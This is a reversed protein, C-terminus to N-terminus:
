INTPKQFNGAFNARSTHILHAKQQYGCSDPKGMRDRLDVYKNYYWYRSVTNRGTM